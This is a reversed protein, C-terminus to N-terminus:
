QVVFSVAESEIEGNRAVVQYNGPQAIEPDAPCSKDVIKGPWTISTSWKEGPDLTQEDKATSPNCFDSSWVLASGSTVRLENAGSGVDRVCPTTGTNTVTMSLGMGAGVATSQGSTGATVTVDQDQCATTASPSATVSQSPVGASASPAASAGQSTQPEPSMSLGFSQEPSPADAATEDNGGLAVRVLLWLLLLVVIIAGVVVARRKWYTSPQEPGVPNIVSSVPVVTAPPHALARVAVPRAPGGVQGHEDRSLRARGRLRWRLCM